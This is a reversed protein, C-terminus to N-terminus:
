VWGAWFSGSDAADLMQTWIQTGPLDPVGGAPAPGLELGMEAAIGPRAQALRTILTIQRAVPMLAAEPLPRELLQSAVLTALGVVSLISLILLTAIQNRLSKM